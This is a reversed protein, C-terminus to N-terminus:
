LQFLSKLSESPKQKDVRTLLSVRLGKFRAKFDSYTQELTGDNLM